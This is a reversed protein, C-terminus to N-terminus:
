VEGKEETPFLENWLDNKLVQIHELERIRKEIREREARVGEGFGINFGHRFTDNSSIFKPVGESFGLEVWAEEKAEKLDKM